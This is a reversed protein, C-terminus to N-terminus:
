LSNNHRMSCCNACLLTYNEVEELKNIRYKKKNLGKNYFYFINSNKDNYKIGCVSCKGGLFIITGDKREANREHRKEDYHEKNKFYYITDRKIIKERNKNYYKSQYNGIKEKNGDDSYYKIWYQKHYLKLKDKNIKRYGKWYKKICDKCIPFIGNKYRKNRYFDSESKIESLVKLKRCKNCRKTEM